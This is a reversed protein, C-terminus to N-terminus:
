LSSNYYSPNGTVNEGIFPPKKYSIKSEPIEIEAVVLGERSGHYEDIEWRKGDYVVIYRRKELINGVCMKLMEAADEIPVEYEYEHRTDGVTIGKVTIFGKEGMIRIRVTRSPEKCLYGQLIDKYGEAMERYSSDKVLYKHEIELAM